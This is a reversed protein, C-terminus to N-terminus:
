GVIGEPQVGLGDGIILAEIVGHEDVVFLYTGRPDACLLTGKTVEAEQRAGNDARELLWGLSYGLIAGSRPFSSLPVEVPAAWSPAVGEPEYCLVHPGHDHYYDDYDEDANWKDSRYWTRVMRGVLRWRKPWRTKVKRLERYPKAHFAEWIAISDGVNGATM